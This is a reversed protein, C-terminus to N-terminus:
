GIQGRQLCVEVVPRIHDGQDEEAPALDRANLGPARQGRLAPHCQTVTALDDIVRVVLQFRGMFDSCSSSGGNASCIACCSPPQRPRTSDPMGTATKTSTLTIRAHNMAAGRTTSCHAMPAETAMASTIATKRNARLCLMRNATLPRNPM